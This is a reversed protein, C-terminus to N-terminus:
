CQSCNVIVFRGTVACPTHVIIWLWFGSSFVSTYNKCLRVMCRLFQATLNIQRLVDTVSGIGPPPYIGIM